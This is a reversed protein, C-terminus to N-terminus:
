KQNNKLYVALQRQIQRALDNLASERASQETVLTSFESELVNNSTTAILDRTILPKETGIRFLKFTTRLQLQRRTAESDVTIDFDSITEEIDQVVLKYQADTPYGDRYFRDILANRLFQGDRDKIIGIDVQNLSSAPSISEEVSKYVPSFGCASLSILGFVLLIKISM